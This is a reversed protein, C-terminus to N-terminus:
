GNKTFKILQHNAKPVDEVIGGSNLTVHVLKVFRNRGYLRQNLIVNESAHFLTKFSFSLLKKEAFLGGLMVKSTSLKADLLPLVSRAFRLSVAINCSSAISGSPSEM